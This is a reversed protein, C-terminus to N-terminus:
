GQATDSLSLNGDLSYTPYTPTGLYVDEVLVSVINIDSKFRYSSAWNYTNNTLKITIPLNTSTCATLKVTTTPSSKTVGILCTDGWTYSDSKGGPGTLEIKNNITVTEGYYNTVVMSFTVTIDVYSSAPLPTDIGLSGDLMYTAIHNTTVSGTETGAHTAVTIPVHTGVQYISADVPSNGGPNLASVRIKGIRPADATNQTLDVYISGNTTIGYSNLESMFSDPNLLYAASWPVNSTVAFGVSPNGPSIGGTYAGSACIATIPVISMAPTAGTAVSKMDSRREWGNKYFKMYYKYPSITNLGTFLAYGTTSVDHFVYPRYKSADTVYSISAALTSADFFYLDATAASDSTFDTKVWHISIDTTSFTATFTTPSTNFVGTFLSNANIEYNSLITGTSTNVGFLNGGKIQKLSSVDFILNVNRLNNNNDLNGLHFTNTSTERVIALAKADDTGAIKGSSYLTFANYSGDVINSYEIRAFNKPLINYIDSPITYYAIVGDSYVNDIIYKPSDNNNFYRNYVYTDSAIQASTFYGATNLNGFKYTFTNNEADIEYVKGDTDVFLDGTIYVRGDPLPTTPTASWLVYNRGIADRISSAQTTCNYDTFYMSFGQLGTIGDYAKTGFGPKGPAYKFKDSM